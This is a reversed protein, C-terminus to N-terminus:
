PEDGQYRLLLVEDTARNRMTSYFVGAEGFARPFAPTTVEVVRGSELSVAFVQLESPDETWARVWAWGDPDVALDSWRALSAPRRQEVVPRGGIRLGSGDRDARGWRPVRWEPLPISDLAGSQEDYRLLFTSAGDTAVQCGEVRGWYPRSVRRTRHMLAAGTDGPVPLEWLLRQTPSPGGGRVAWAQLRRPQRGTVDVSDVIALLTSDGLAAVHRVGYTWPGALPLRVSYRPMGLSDFVEIERRDYIVVSKPNAGVFNHNESGTILRLNMGGSIEGPGGGARSFERVPDLMPSLEAVAPKGEDFLFVRGPVAAVGAVTAIWTEGTGYAHTQGARAAAAVWRSGAELSRCGQAALPTAGAACLSATSLIVIRLNLRITAM